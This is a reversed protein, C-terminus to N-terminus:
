FFTQGKELDVKEGILYDSQNAKEQNRKKAKQLAISNIMLFIRHTVDRKKTMGELGWILCNFQYLSRGWGETVSNIFARM